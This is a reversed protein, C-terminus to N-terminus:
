SRDYLFKTVENGGNLTRDVYGSVVLKGAQSEHVPDSVILTDEVHRVAYGAKLLAVIGARLWEAGPMPQQQGLQAGRLVALRELAWPARESRLAVWGPGFVLPLARGHPAERILAATESESLPVPAPVPSHTSRASM